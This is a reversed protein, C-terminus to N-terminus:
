AAAELWRRYPLVARGGELAATLLRRIARVAGPHHRDVPHVALRMGGGIVGTAAGMGEVLLASATIWGFGPRHCLAPARLRATRVLDLVTLHTTLYSVGVAAAAQVGEPTILWGPPTFGVEDFGLEGLVERGWGIRIAAEERGIGWFETAGRALLRGAPGRWGPVPRVQRHSWGHLAVEDGRAAREALWGALWSGQRLRQGRWPGPVVLLTAAAVGWQDFRETWWVVDTQTAPAVDHLSLVLTM